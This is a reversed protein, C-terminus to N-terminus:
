FVYKGNRHLPELRAKLRQTTAATSLIKNLEMFYRETLVVYANLKTDYIELIYERNSLDVKCMSEIKMKIDALTEDTAISLLYQGDKFHIVLEFLRM